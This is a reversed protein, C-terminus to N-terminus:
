RGGAGECGEVACCKFGPPVHAASEGRLQHAKPAGVPGLGEEVANGGPRAAHSEVGDV